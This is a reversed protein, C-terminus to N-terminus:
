EFLQYQERLNGDIWTLIEPEALSIEDGLVARLEACSLHVSGKETQHTYTFNVDPSGQILTTVTSVIDGLPVFDIHNRGFRAHIM